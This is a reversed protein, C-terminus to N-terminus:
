DRKESARNSKKSRAAGKSGKRQSSPNPPSPLPAIDRTAGTAEVELPSSVGPTSASSAKKKKTKKSSSAPTKNSPSPREKNTREMSNDHLTSELDLHSTARIILELERTDDEEGAEDGVAEQAGGRAYGDSPVEGPGFNSSLSDLRMMKSEVYNHKWRQLNSKTFPNSLIDWSPADYGDVGNFLDVLRQAFPVFCALEEGLVLSDKHYQVARVVSERISAERQKDGEPLSGDQKLWLVCKDVLTGDDLNESKFLGFSLRALLLFSRGPPLLTLGEVRLGGGRVELINSAVCFLTEKGDVPLATAPVCNENVYVALDSNMRKWRNLLKTKSPDILVDITREAGSEGSPGDVLRLLHERRRGSALVSLLRVGEPVCNRLVPRGWSPESFTHHPFLNGGRDSSSLPLDKERFVLIQDM